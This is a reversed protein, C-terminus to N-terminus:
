HFHFILPCCVKQEKLGAMADPIVKLPCRGVHNKYSLKLWFLKEPGIVLKISLRYNTEDEAEVVVRFSEVCILNGELRTQLQVYTRAM